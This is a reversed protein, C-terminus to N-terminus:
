GLRKKFEEVLGVPTPDVGYNIALYYSAYCGIQLTSFIRYIEEGRPITVPFSKIQQKEFIEKTIAFRKQNREGDLPDELTVLHFVAQPKSFGIMENHNLEPFCNWFAPTKANENFMIKWVLALSKFHSSAYVIPTKGALEAAIKKGTARSKKLEGLIKKSASKLEKSKDAIKGAKALLGLLASFGYGIGMRPQIGVPLNVLPIKTEQCIKAVEGGSSMGLCPLSNKLAEKFSSLTEETNGSYSSIINLCSPQYAEPPLSYTRNIFIRFPSKTKEKNLTLDLYTQVLEAALASGGMGSLVISKPEGPLTLSETLERGFLLQKPLDDIVGLLNEKDLASRNDM